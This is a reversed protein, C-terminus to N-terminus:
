NDFRSLITTRYKSVAERLSGKDWSLSSYVGPVTLLYKTKRGWDLALESPFVSIYELYITGTATGFHPESKESGICGPVATGLNQPEKRHRSALQQLESRQIRKNSQLKQVESSNIEKGDGRGVHRGNDLWDTQPDGQQVKQCLPTRGTQNSPYERM